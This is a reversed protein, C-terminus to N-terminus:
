KCVRYRRVVRRGSKDTVWKSHWTCHAVAGPPNYSYYPGETYPNNGFTFGFGWSDGACAAFIAAALMIAKCTPVPTEGFAPPM